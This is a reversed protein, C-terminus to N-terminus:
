QVGLQLKEVTFNRSSSSTLHLVVAQNNLSFKGMLVLMNLIASEINDSM